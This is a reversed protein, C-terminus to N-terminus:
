EEKELISSLNIFKNKIIENKESAKSEHNLKQLSEFTNIKPSNKKGL